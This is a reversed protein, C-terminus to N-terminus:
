QIYLICVLIECILFFLNHFFGLKAYIDIMIIIEFIYNVSIWCDSLSHICIVSHCLMYLFCKLTILM